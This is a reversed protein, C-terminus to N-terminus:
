TLCKYVELPLAQLNRIHITHEGRKQLLVEFTSGYYVLLVRLARKHLRNIKNNSSKGSFVWILPCYNFSSLVFARYLVDKECELNPVIRAFARTKNSTKKCISQVYQNFNLMLDVTVGLLKVSDTMQIVIENIDICLIIDDKLGIFLRQFKESTQM